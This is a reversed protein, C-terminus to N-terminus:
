VVGKDRAYLTLALRGDVKLKEYINHLHIKVTGESISLTDAIARNRLGRAVLRTIEIERPTLLGAIERAGAERRLMTDLAGGISRVEIWREGGHVKRVVQVLLKPAMEKLVVGRVGLRIAEIVEGEDLAATLLVVRTPLKNPKLERLVGLGDLRPMRIDLVLVDPHHQRVARVAEEGDRCRALVTFEESSGAGRFLQDLADLVIPHDDALVLTVPM